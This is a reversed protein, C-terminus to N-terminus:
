SRARRCVSSPASRSSPARTPPISRAPRRADRAGAIVSFLKEVVPDQIDRPLHQGIRIFHRKPIVPNRPAHEFEVALFHYFSRLAALRRNITAFAHCCQHCHDIFADIDQVKVNVPLKNIWAFFLELDNVYHIQTSAHPAKRKLWQQFREIEPLM